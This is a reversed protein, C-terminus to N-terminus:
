RAIVGSHEACIREFIDKNEKSDYTGSVTWCRVDIDHNRALDDWFREEDAAADV